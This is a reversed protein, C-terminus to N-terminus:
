LLAQYVVKEFEERLLFGQKLGYGLVQTLALAILDEKPDVLFMTCAAGGWGYSGISGISISETLDTRVGVGFGYGWGYGRPYIFLDGTHNTTMLDITKPSLLRVGDLEGQNQLMMAFRLYDYATSLVGGYNGLGSFIDKPGTVKISDIPREYLSLNWSKDWTYLTVLRDVKQQPLLFSTDKMNLPAFIREQFFAELSKGSIIEV